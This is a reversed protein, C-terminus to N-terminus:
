SGERVRRVLERWLADAADRRRKHEEPTMDEANGFRSRRHPHKATVIAPKREASAPAATAVRRLKERPTTVITPVRIGAAQAKRKRPARKPRYPRYVIAMKNCGMPCPARLPFNPATESQYHRLQFKRNESMESIESLRM